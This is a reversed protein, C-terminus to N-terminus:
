APDNAGSRPKPTCMTCTRKVSGNMAKETIWVQGKAHDLVAEILMRRNGSMFIGEPTQELSLTTTLLQLLYKAYRM